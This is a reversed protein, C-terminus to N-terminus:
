PTAHPAVHLSHRVSLSMYPATHLSHRASASKCLTIHLSQPASPSTYFTVSSSHRVFLTTCLIVHLTCHKRQWHTNNPMHTHTHTYTHTYLYTQAHTCERNASFSTCLNPHLPHRTSPPMHPTVYLSHRAPPSKCLAINENGIHVIPCTRIHTHTHTHTHKRTHASARPRKCSRHVCPISPIVM